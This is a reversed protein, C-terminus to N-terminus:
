SPGPGATAVEAAWLELRLSRGPTQQVEAMAVRRPPGSLFPLLTQPLDGDTVILIPQPTSGPALPATLQFHDAAARGPDRWAVWQPSLDRWAYGGIAIVARDSGLVQRPLSPDAQELRRFHAEAHPRLEAFADDWGRMRAWVDFQRPLPKQLAHALDGGLVLGGLLLVQAALAVYWGRLRATPQEAHVWLALALVGGILAPATWNLQAKAHLAQIAGLSVLPLVLWGSFRRAQQRSVRAGPLSPPAAKGRAGRWALAWPVVVPGLLLLLGALYEGQSLWPNRAAAGLTIEATHRLTPWGHEANWWLNPLVCALAPLATWAVAQWRPLARPAQRALLLLVGVASVLFAAMTYKSLLGLGLWLGLWLHDRRRGDRWARWLARAALAWALLLPADTTAVLGLLGAVPSAIFLLAAFQGAREPRAQPGPAVDAVVERVWAHLVVATLPYCLMALARVGLLGDGLWDTSLAILAAVMPPKSFYGWDLDKSWLWYQAEDVHLGADVHTVVWAHWVSLAILVLVLASPWLRAQPLARAQPRDFLSALDHNM